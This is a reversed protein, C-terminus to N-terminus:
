GALRDEMKGDNVNDTCLETSAPCTGPEEFFYDDGKAKRAV